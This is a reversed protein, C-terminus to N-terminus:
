RPIIFCLSVFTTYCFCCVSFCLLSFVLWHADVFPVTIAITELFAPRSCFGELAPVLWAVKQCNPSCQLNLTGNQRGSSKSPPGSDVMLFFDYFHPGLHPNSFVHNTSQNKIGSHSAQFPLLWAKANYTNCFIRKRPTTFRLSFQNCFLYGLRGFDIWIRWVGSVVGFSVRISGFNLKLRGLILGFIIGFGRRISGSDNLIYESDLGFRGVYQVSDIKFWGYM